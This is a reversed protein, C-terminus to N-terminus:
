FFSHNTRKKSAIRALVIQKLRDRDIKEDHARDHCPRCLGILNELEDPNARGGM